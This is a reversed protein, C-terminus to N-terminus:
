GNNLEFIKLKIKANASIDKKSIDIKPLFEGLIQFNTSPEPLRPINKETMMVVLKLKVNDIFPVTFIGMGRVEIKGCINKQCYLFIDNKIKRCITQDDSILTAGSDILRLALDSKGSGSPGLILIGADEIAVSSAHKEEKIAM